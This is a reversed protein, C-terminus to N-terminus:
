ASLRWGSLSTNSCTGRVWLERTLWVKFSDTVITQLLFLPLKIDPEIMYALYGKVVEPFILNLYLSNFYFFVVFAFQNKLAESLKKHLPTIWKNETIKSIQQDKKLFNCAMSNLCCGKLRKFSSLAFCQILRSVAWIALHELSQLPACTVTLGHEFPKRLLLDKDWKIFWVPHCKQKQFQNWYRSQWFTIDFHPISNM